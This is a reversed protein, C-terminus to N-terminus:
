GRVKLYQRYSYRRGINWRYLSEDIRKTIGGLRRKLLYASALQFFIMEPIDVSVDFHKRLERVEAPTLPFEVGDGYRPVWLRGVVHARFWVLLDSAANNEYFFASGGPLLARRLATCFEAFPEIHHLILSGFVFDFKGIEDIRLADACVASVGPIGHDRARRTLRDVAVGSSDVGTVIAGARALLLTTEGNGCGIDLVRKDRLDGFFQTAVTVASAIDAPLRSEGLDYQADWFAEATSAM